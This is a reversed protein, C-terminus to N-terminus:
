VKVFKQTFERGAIRDKPLDCMLARLDTARCELRFIESDRLAVADSVIEISARKDIERLLPAADNRMGILRAYEPLPHRRALECTLHLMAHACLRTLRIQTYRKCKIEDILEAASSAKQACKLVRNELGESVDPLAAIEEASMNRLIHLLLDDPAHMSVASIYKHLKEPVGSRAAEINGNLLEARIASASAFGDGDMGQAHYAGQRRIVIPKMASGLARIARIYEVGLTANPANLAELPLNLYAAAAEGFARAHNKGEALAAELMESVEPPENERIEAARQLQELEATESGFSLYDCGVGNLLAVGGRAFVDATRLAFLAPLELVADAGGELAMRARKWKDMCAAEGRQVFNGSMCAIVYDCGTIERTKQIHYAHGSHFPNYEAIIGAIKM